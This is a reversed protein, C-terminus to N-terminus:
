IVGYRKKLRMVRQYSENIRKESIKGSAVNNVVIEVIDKVINPNYVGLNNGYILIDAGANITAVVTEELSFHDEIAKMQLDDTVVVGKYGMENRLINNIFKSSLSAPYKEDINKNFVHAVMVTDNYGQVILNKFPILEDPSYTDTIDVFGEHSDDKSSGHGPFHKISTIISESHHGDIFAKAYKVVENPNNSFSREYKGIAPSSPNIDLDVSPAFNFNFGLEHLMKAIKVSEMYVTSPNNSLAMQKATASDKNTFGDRAKLRAVLGGEQDVTVFMKTKSSKQIDAILNKVQEPNKINPMKDAILSRNFLIVGGLNYESISEQLESPVTEGNFGIILMQGIKQKLSVAGNSGVANLTNVCVFLYVCAFFKIVKM